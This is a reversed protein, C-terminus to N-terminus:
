EWKLEQIEQTVIDVIYAAIKRFRPEKPSIGGYQCIPLEWLRASRRGLLGDRVPEPDFFHFNGQMKASSFPAFRRQAVPLAIKKVLEAAEFPTLERRERDEVEEDGSWAAQLRTFFGRRILEDMVKVEAPDLEQAALFRLKQELDSSLGHGQARLECGFLAMNLFFCFWITRNAM